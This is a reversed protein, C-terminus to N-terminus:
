PAAGGSVTRRLWRDLLRGDIVILALAITLAGALERLGLREGLFAIGLIIPTVPVVISTLMANIPGCRKLVTFHCLPSLGSGFTGMVLIALWASASPNPLSWPRDILFTAPLAVILAGLTQASALAFPHYGGLYKRAYISAAAYCLASGVLMAQAQWSGAVGHAGTIVAVGGIGILIGDLRRWTFREETFFWPAILLGCLPTTAMFIAAVGGTVERQAVIILVFPVFNNLVAFLIIRRWEPWTAPLRLGMALVVTGLLTAAPILRLTGLSMAPLSDRAIAIFFFTSGWLMAQVGILGYEFAGLTTSRTSPATTTVPTPPNVHAAIPSPM